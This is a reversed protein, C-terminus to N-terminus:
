VQREIMGSTNNRHSGIDYIGMDNPSEKDCDSMIVPAQAPDQPAVVDGNCGSLFLALFSGVLFIVMGSITKSRM